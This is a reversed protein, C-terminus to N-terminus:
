AKKKESKIRITYRGKGSAEVSVPIQVGPMYHGNMSTGPTSVNDFGVIQGPQSNDAGVFVFYDGPELDRRIITTPLGWLEKKGLNKLQGTNLIEGTPRLLYLVPSICTMRYGNGKERPDVEIEYGGGQTITVRYLDFHTRFGAEAASASALQVSDAKPFRLPDKGRERIRLMSHAEVTDAAVAYFEFKSEARGPMGVERMRFMPDDGSLEAQLKAGSRLTVADGHVVEALSVQVRTADVMSMERYVKKPAPACSTWIWCTLLLVAPFVQTTRM